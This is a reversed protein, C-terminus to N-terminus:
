CFYSGGLYLASIGTGVTWGIPGSVGLAAAAAGYSATHAFGATGIAASCASSSSITVNQSNQEAIEAVEQNFAILNQKNEEGREGNLVANYESVVNSVYDINVDEYEELDEALQEENIIYIAGNENIDLNEQIVLNLGDYDEDQVDSTSMESADTIGANINTLATLSLMLASFGVLIKKYM